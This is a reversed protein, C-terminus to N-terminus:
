ADRGEERTSVGAQEFTAMESMVRSAVDFLPMAMAAGTAEGLRLDLTLLPRLDLHDLLIRHGPESSSHGAFLVARVAPVLACAMALGATSIFGDALLPVRHAAAGIGFGCIAALELGGVCRLAALPDDAALQHLALAGELTTVKKAVGEIDLGTGPGTVAAVPRGTLVSTLASASSTNGIGMEGVALLGVGEAASEAALGFGIELAALLEDWQMAAERAFNRTGPAIPHRRVRAEGDMAVPHAVGVDVVVLDSGVSRVVANIAAGGAEFNAVMQGTVEQPYPSVGEATVGHDAAFIVVRKAEVEPRTRQQIACLRCALEEVRGLSGPPKTLTDQYAQADRQHERSLAPIESAKAAIWAEVSARTIPSDPRPQRPTPAQDQM